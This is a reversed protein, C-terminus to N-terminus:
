YWLNCRFFSPSLSFTTRVATRSPATFSHESTNSNDLDDDDALSVGMSPSRGFNGSPMTATPPPMSSSPAVVPAAVPFLASQFAPNNGAPPSFAPMPNMVLSARINPAAAAAPPAHFMPMPNAAPAPAAQPKPPLVVAAPAAAPKVPPTWSTERTIKNYYYTRGDAMSVPAWNEPLAPTGEIPEPAPAPAPTVKPVLAPLGMPTPQAVPLQPMASAPRTAQLSLQPPATM